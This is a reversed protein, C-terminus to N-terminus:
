RQDAPLEQCLKLHDDIAKGLAGLNLCNEPLLAVRASEQAERRLTRERETQPGQRSTRESGDTPQESPSEHNQDVSITPLGLRGLQDGSLAMSTLANHFGENAQWEVLSQSSQRIENGSDTNDSRDYAAVM